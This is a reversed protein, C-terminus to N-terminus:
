SFDFTIIKKNFDDIQDFPIYTIVFDIILKIKENGPNLFLNFKFKPFYEFFEQGVLKAAMEYPITPSFRITFDISTGGQYSKLIDEYEGEFLIDKNVYLYPNPYINKITEFILDDVYDPTLSQYEPTLFRKYSIFGTFKNWEPGDVRIVKLVRFKENPLLQFPSKM